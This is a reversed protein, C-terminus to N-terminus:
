TIDCSAALSGRLRESAILFTERNIESGMYRRKEGLGLTAVASTGSGLFYDVILDGPATFQEILIRAENLPQQWEHYDKEITGQSRIVDRFMMPKGTSGKKALWIIPQYVGLVNLSHLALSRQREAIFTLRYELGTNDLLGFLWKDFSFKGPYILANGNPTLVRSIELGLEKAIQHDVWPPDTFVLDVSGEEPKLERFDINRIDFDQITVPKAKKLIEKRNEVYAASKMKRLTTLGELSTNDLAQMVTKTKNAFVIPPKRTKGDMSKRSNSFAGVEKRLKSVTPHSAGIKEAIQRDSQDKDRLFELRILERVQAQNLHRRYANLHLRLEEPSDTKLFISKPIKIGHKKAIEIRVKGDITNGKTDVIPPNIVGFKLISRELAQYTEKDIAPLIM